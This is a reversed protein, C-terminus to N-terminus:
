KKRAVILWDWPYPEKLGQSSSDIIEKWSYEIKKVDEVNFGAQSLFLDIKERIYCKTLARGIDVIGEVPSVVESKFLKNIESM